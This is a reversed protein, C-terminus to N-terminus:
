TEYSRSVPIAAGSREDKTISLWLLMQKKLIKSISIRPVTNLKIEYDEYIFSKGFQQLIILPVIALKPINSLRMKM